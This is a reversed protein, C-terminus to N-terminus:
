STSDLPKWLPVMLKVRAPSNKSQMRALMLRICRLKEPPTDLPLQEPPRTQLHAKKERGWCSPQQRNRLTSTRMLHSLNEAEGASALAQTEVREASLPYIGPGKAQGEM